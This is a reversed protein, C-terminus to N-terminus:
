LRQASDSRPKSWRAVYRYVVPTLYLTFIAALGLGAVVIWGITHSAEAGPGSSLVLPEAGHQV